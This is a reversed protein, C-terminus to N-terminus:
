AMEGNMIVNRLNPVMSKIATHRLNSQRFLETNPNVDIRELTDAKLQAYPRRFAEWIKERCRNMRTAILWEHCFLKKQMM